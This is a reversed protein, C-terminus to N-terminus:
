YPWNMLPSFCAPTASSRLLRESSARELGAANALRASCAFFAALVAPRAYSRCSSGAARSEGHHAKGSLSGNVNLNGGELSLQGVGPGPAVGLGNAVAIEAPFVADNCGPHLHNRAGRRILLPVDASDGVDQLLRDLRTPLRVLCGSGKFSPG